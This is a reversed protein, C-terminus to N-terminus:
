LFNSTHCSLWGFGIRSKISGRFRFFKEACIPEENVAGKSEIKLCDLKRETGSMITIKYKPTSAGYLRRCTFLFFFCFSFSM